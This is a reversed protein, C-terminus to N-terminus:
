IILHNWATFEKFNLFSQQFVQLFYSFSYTQSYYCVGILIDFM